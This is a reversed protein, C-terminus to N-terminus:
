AEPAGHATARAGVARIKADLLDLADGRHGRLHEVAGLATVAVDLLEQVVDDMSHTVGKRPNQGLAGIYAAVAEGNEEAVKAIRGWTLAHPDAGANHADIWRSLAVLAAAADATM